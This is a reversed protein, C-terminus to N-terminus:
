SRRSFLRLYHIVVPLQRRYVVKEVHLAWTACGERWLNFICYVTWLDAPYNEYEGLAALALGLTIGASWERLM